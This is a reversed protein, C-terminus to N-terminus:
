NRTNLFSSSGFFCHPHTAKMISFQVHVIGSNVYIYVKFTDQHIIMDKVKSIEPLFSRISSRRSSVSEDDFADSGFVLCIDLKASSELNNVRFSKSVKDNISLFFLKPADIVVGEFHFLFFFFHM